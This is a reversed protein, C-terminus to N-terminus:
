SGRRHDSRVVYPEGVTRAVFAACAVAPERFQLSIQSSSNGVVWQSGGPAVQKSLLYWAGSSRQDESYALWSEILDSRTALVSGLAEETVPSLGFSEWIEERLDHFSRENDARRYTIALGCISLAVSTSSM